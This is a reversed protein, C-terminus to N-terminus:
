YHPNGKKKGRNKRGKTGEKDDDKEKKDKYIHVEKHKVIIPKVNDEFHKNIVWVEVSNPYRIRLRSNTIYVVLVRQSEYTYYDGVCIHHNYCTVSSERHVYCSALLFLLLLPILKKM